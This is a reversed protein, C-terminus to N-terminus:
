HTFYINMHFIAASVTNLLKGRRVLSYQLQGYKKM